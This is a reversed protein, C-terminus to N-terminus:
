LMGVGGKKPLIVESSGQLKQIIETKDALIFRCVKKKVNKLLFTLM